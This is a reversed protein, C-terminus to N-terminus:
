RGRLELSRRSRLNKLPWRPRGNVGVSLNYTPSGTRSEDQCEIRRSSEIVIVLGVVLVIPMAYRHDSPLRPAEARPFPNAWSTADRWRRKLARCM